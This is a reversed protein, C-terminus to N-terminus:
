NPGFYPFWMAQIRRQYHKSKLIPSYEVGTGRKNGTSQGTMSELEAYLKSGYSSLMMETATNRLQGILGAAHWSTGCGIQGQELSNHFM